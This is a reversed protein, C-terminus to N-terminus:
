VEPRIPRLFSNSPHVELELVRVASTRLCAITTGSPVANAAGDRYAGLTRIRFDVPREVPESGQLPPALPLPTNRIRPRPHELGGVTSVQFSGAPPPYGRHGDSLAAGHVKPLFLQWLPAEDDRQGPMESDHDVAHDVVGM